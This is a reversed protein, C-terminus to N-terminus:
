VDAGGLLDACVADDETFSDVQYQVPKALLLSGLFDHDDVTIELSGSTKLNNVLLMRLHENRRTDHFTSVERCSSTKTEVSILETDERREGSEQLHNDRLDGHGAQVVTINETM